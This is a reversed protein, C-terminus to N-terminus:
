GIRWKTSYPKIPWPWHELDEVVFGYVDIYWIEHWVAQRLSGLGLVGM